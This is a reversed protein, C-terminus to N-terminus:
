MKEIRVATSVISISPSADSIFKALQAKFLLELFIKPNKHAWGKFFDMRPNPRRTPHTPKQTM